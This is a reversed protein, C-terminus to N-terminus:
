GMNLSSLLYKIETLHTNLEQCFELLEAPSKGSKKMRDIMKLSSVTNELQSVTSLMKTRHIYSFVQDYTAETDESLIRSVISEVVLEPRSKM